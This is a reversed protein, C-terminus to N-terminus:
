CFFLVNGPQQASRMACRSRYTILLAKRLGFLQALGREFRLPASEQPRSKPLFLLGFVVWVLVIPLSKLLKRSTLFKPLLFDVLPKSKSLSGIPPCFRECGKATVRLNSSIPKKQTPLVTRGEKVTV